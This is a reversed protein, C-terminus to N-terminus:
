SKESLEKVKQLAQPWSKQFEDLYEEAIDTEVMLETQDNATTLTYNEEAGKWSQVKESETDEVGNEVMGLHEIGMYEYDRRESIRAVMGDGNPGLFHVKSGEQWDTKAYSGESFPATWQRYTEDKWLVNWVKEKSANITVNFEKRKM